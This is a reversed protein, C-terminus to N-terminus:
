DGVLIVFLSSGMTTSSRKAFVFSIVFWLLLKPPCQLSLELQTVLINTITYNVIVDNHRKYTMITKNQSEITTIPYRQYKCFCNERVERLMESKIFVALEIFLIIRKSFDYWTPWTTVFLQSIVSEKVAWILRIGKKDLVGHLFTSSRPKFSRLTACLRTM